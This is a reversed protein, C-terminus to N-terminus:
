RLIEETHLMTANGWRRRWFLAPAPPRGLVYGAGMLFHDAAYGQGLQDKSLTLQTNWRQWQSAVGGYVRSTNLAPSLSVPTTWPSYTLYGLHNLNLQINNLALGFSATHSTSLAYTHDWSWNKYHTNFSGYSANFAGNTYTSQKSMSDSYQLRTVWDASLSHKAYVSWLDLQSKNEWVDTPYDAYLNDFQSNLHSRSLKLGLETQASLTRTLGLNYYENAYGNPGPNALYPGGNADAPYSTPVMANYGRAESKGAVLSLSNGDIKSAWGAALQREGFRGWTGSATARKTDQPLESADALTSINIV